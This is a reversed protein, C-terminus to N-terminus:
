TDLLKKIISGGYANKTLEVFEEVTMEDNEIDIGHQKAFENRGFECSGTLRHHWDYFLKAPYKVGKKFEDWFAAIREDEPLDDFMKKLLAARAAELTSGHALEGGGKAIFCPTLQLDEGLMFGKAFAGIVATIITPIHDVNYIKHGNFSKLFLSSGLGCGTSDYEGYGGGNGSGDGSIDEDPVSSWYSFEPYEGGEGESSGYGDGCGNGFGYYTGTEDGGGFCHPAGVNLFERIKLDEM